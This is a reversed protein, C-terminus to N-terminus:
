FFFFLMKRPKKFKELVTEKRGRLVEEQRGDRWRRPGDAQSVWIFFGKRGDHDPLQLPQPNSPLHNRTLLENACFYFSHLTLGACVCISQDVIWMFFFYVWITM